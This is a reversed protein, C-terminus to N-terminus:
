NEDSKGPMCELCIVEDCNVFGERGGAFGAELTAGDESNKVATELVEFDAVTRGCERCYGFASPVSLDLKRAVEVIRRPRLWGEALAKRVWANVARESCIFVHM